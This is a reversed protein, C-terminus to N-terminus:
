IRSEGDRLATSSKCAPDLGGIDRIPSGLSPSRWQGSPRCTEALPDRGPPQEAEDLLRDLFRAISQSSEYRWAMVVPDGQGRGLQDGLSSLLPAFRDKQAVLLKRPDCGSRRLLLIKLLLISRVDRLHAVPEDLWTKVALRGAPTVNFVTRVPGRGGSEEGVVVALSRQALQELARYVLPRPVTWVQGLGGDPSLARALAFGHSPAETLLSLVVWETM